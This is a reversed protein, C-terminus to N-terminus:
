KNVKTLIEWMCIGCPVFKGESKLVVSESDVFFVLNLSVKSGFKPLNTPHSVLNVFM